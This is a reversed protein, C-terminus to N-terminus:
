EGIFVRTIPHHYAYYQLIIYQRMHKYNYFNRFSQMHVTNILCVKKKSVQAPRFPWGPLYSKRLGDSTTVIADHVM